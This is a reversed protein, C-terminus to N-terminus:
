GKIQCDDHVVLAVTHLAINRAKQQSATQKPQPTSM